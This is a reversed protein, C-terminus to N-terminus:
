SRPGTVVLERLKYNEICHRYFNYESCALNRKTKMQCSAHVLNAHHMSLIGTLIGISCLIRPCTPCFAPKILAILISKNKDIPFFMHCQVMIIYSKPLWLVQFIAKM